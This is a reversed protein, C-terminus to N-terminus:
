KGGGEIECNINTSKSSELEGRDTVNIVLDGRTVPATIVDPGKRALLGGKVGGWALAALLLGALGLFSLLRAARALRSRRKRAPPRHHAKGNATPPPTSLVPGPSPCVTVPPDATPASLLDPSLM